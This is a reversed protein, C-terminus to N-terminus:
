RFVDRFKASPEVCPALLLLIGAPLYFLGISFGSIFVFLGMVIAACIRIVQKRFVLPLLAILVPLMVPIVVWSGNVELLTARTARGQGFVSYLPGVLLYIAAVMALAFSVATLRTRM